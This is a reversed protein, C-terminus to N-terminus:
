YSRDRTIERVFWRRQDSHAAADPKRSHNRNLVWDEAIERHLKWSQDFEGLDYYDYPDYGMSAGGLNAAKHVPPLWLSTFGAKALSPVQECVYNWWQFERNDVRPCDWFFAQMMVGM